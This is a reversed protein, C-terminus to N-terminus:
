INVTIAANERLDTSYKQQNLDLQRQTLYSTIKKEVEEFPTIGAAKKETVKIIHYGFRTKIPESIEGPTLSFAAEAFPKVMQGRGFFGLDGGQKSSAGQSNKQALEAFDEGNITRKRIDEITTLAQKTTADDSDAEVKILIHSARVQEPAKFREINSDYFARSEEPTVAINRKLEQLLEQQLQQLILQKGIQEQIINVTINNQTLYNIFEMETKFQNRFGRMQVDVATADATISRKEADQLMLEISILREIVKKEIDIGESATNGISSFQQKAATLANNFYARSIKRNNVIAAATDATAADIRDSQTQATEEPSEQMQTAPPPATEEPSATKNVSETVTYQENKPSLSTKTEKAKSTVAEKSIKIETKTENDCGTCITLLLTLTVTLLTANKPRNTQM